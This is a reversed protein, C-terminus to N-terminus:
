GRKVWPDGMTNVAKRMEGTNIHVYKQTTTIRTHRMIEKMIPLSTNSLALATATTHRCAYPPLQRVGLKTLTKYYDAYFSDKSLPYLLLDSTEMLVQVVPKVVDALVIPTAKGKATKSGAGVITGGELDIMNKTVSRLEGPRMGTYIMLLILGSFRDGDNWAKWFNLIEDENWPVSEKEDLDPLVLFPALNQRVVEQSMALRYLHSIVSKADRQPYYTDGVSEVAEQLEAVTLSGIERHHISTMRNYITTYAKARHASLKRMGTKQYQVWLEDMTFSDHQAPASLVSVHEQAERKTKFGTKKRSVRHKKGDEDIHYGLTVECAWGGRYKYVSGTGNGRKRTRQESTPRGCHQCFVADDPINKRCYKCLM